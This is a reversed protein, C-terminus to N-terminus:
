DKNLYQHLRMGNEKLWLKHMKYDPCLDSVLSWFRESHNMELLHCMEHVVVYYLVEHPALVLTLFSRKQRWKFNYQSTKLRKKM